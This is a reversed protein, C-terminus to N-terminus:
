SQANLSKFHASRSAISKIACDGQHQSPIRLNKNFGIKSEEFHCKMFSNIAPRKPLVKLHIVRNRNYNRKLVHVYTRPKLYFNCSLVFLSEYSHIIFPSHGSKTKPLFGSSEDDSLFPYVRSPILAQTHRFRVGYQHMLFIFLIFVFLFFLAFESTCCPVRPLLHRRKLTSRRASDGSRPVIKNDSWHSICKKKKYM